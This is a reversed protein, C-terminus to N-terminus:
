FFSLFNNLGHSHAYFKSKIEKKNIDTLRILHFFTNKGSSVLQTFARDRMKKPSTKTNKQSTKLKMWNMYLLRAGTPASAHASEFRIPQSDHNFDQFISLCTTTTKKKLNLSHNIKNM